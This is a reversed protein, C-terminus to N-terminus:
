IGYDTPDPLAAEAFARRATEACKNCRGCHRGDTPSICSFTHELPLDGGRRLVEVKSLTAYPTEVAVSGSVACNVSDAVGPLVRTHRRPLSQRGLCRARDGGRRALRCWVAGQIVPHCKPGAFLGSSRAVERGARRSGDLELTAWVLRRGASRSHGATSTPNLCNRHPLASPARIPRSGSWDPDSTFRLQLASTLPSARASGRTDLGGSVLVALSSPTM